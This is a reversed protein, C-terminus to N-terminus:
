DNPVTAPNKSKSDKVLLKVLRRMESEIDRAVRKIMLDRRHQKPSGTM